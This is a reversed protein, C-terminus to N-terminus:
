SRIWGANQLSPALSLEEARVHYAMAVMQALNLGDVTFTRGNASFGMGFRNSNPDAPRISAADFRAPPQARLVLRVTM